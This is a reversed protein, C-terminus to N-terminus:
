SILSIEDEDARGRAWNQFIDRGLWLVGLTILLGGIVGMVVGGVVWASNRGRSKCEEERPVLLVSLSSGQQEQSVAMYSFCNGDADRQQGNLEVRNFAGNVGESATVLM